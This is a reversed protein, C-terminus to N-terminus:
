GWSSRSPRVRATRWPEPRAAGRTMGGCIPSSGPLFRRWALAAKPPGQLHDRRCSARLTPSGPTARWCPESGARSSVPLLRRTSLRGLLRNTAKTSSATAFSIATEIGAEPQARAEHIINVADVVDEEPRVDPLDDRMTTECPPTSMSREVPVRGPMQPRDLKWPADRPLDIRSISSIHWGDHLAALIVVYQNLFSLTEDFRRSLWEGVEPGFAGDDNEDSDLPTEGLRCYVTILGVTRLEGFGRDTVGPSRAPREFDKWEPFASEAAVLPVAGDVTGQKLEVQFRPEHLHVEKGSRLRGAGEALGGVREGGLLLM